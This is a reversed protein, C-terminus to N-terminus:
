PQHKRKYALFRDLNVIAEDARAKLEAASKKDIAKVMARVKPLAAELHALFGDKWFVAADCAHAEDAYVDFLQNLAEVAPAPPTAPLAALLTLLFTGIERNVDLPAPDLALQGLVGVCKVGLSQFPDDDDAAAAGQQPELGKTAQYLAIFKRHEGPGLSVRGALGRSVAWALGTVQAALGVDATDTALIPSVVQQWLSCAVPRWARQIGANRDDSFDFLSVSWAINNLASLAHGRLQASVDDNNGPDHSALRILQPLATQLLARLVPLDDADAGGDGDAGTVMEMDAMMEDEGMEDDDNEGDEEREQGSEGDEDDSGPVDADGMDEDDRITEFHQQKQPSAAADGVSSETLSTGISALTELALQQQELPSSWGAGDLTAQTPTASLAKALTPILVSDDADLLAPADKSAALSAFLNHLTACALIGDGTVHDKLAMMAQFCLSGEPSAFSSALPANDECLMMLCALADTRLDVVADADAQPTHAVLVLLLRSLVPNAAVADFIDDGAEALATLLSVLSAAISAVFGQEAKPLTSFAPQQSQIKEVMTKAAYQMPTLVDQRFLHLAFDADEEHALLQLVGWGAARSELAADTLTQTLITHVLHERLLLKRCRPDQVINAIAAAAASRSKPDADRLQHVIPLIKAERLAALEPDSPPKVQKAM